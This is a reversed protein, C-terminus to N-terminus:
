ASLTIQTPVPQDSGSSGDQAAAAEALEHWSRRLPDLLRIVERAAQPDNAVDVATLRRVIFEYLRGLDAAIEGGREMDLTEWLHCIVESAKSNARWRREIDGAEIAAVAEKLLGIAREYLMAVRKAPSAAMIQQMLYKQSVDM